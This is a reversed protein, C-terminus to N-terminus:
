PALTTTIEITADTMLKHVPCKQSVRLIDARQAETLNGTISIEANMRYTGAREQSADSQVDVEVNQVDLGKHRAYWLITLAKCAGLAADFLEHANPASGEGGEAVSGDTALRNRGIIIEHRMPAAM